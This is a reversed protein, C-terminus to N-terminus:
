VVLEKCELVDERLEILYDLKAEMEATDLTGDVQMLQLVIRGSDILEQLAKVAEEPPVALAARLEALNRNSM